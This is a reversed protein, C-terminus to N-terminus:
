HPTRSELPHWAGATIDVRYRIAHGFLFLVIGLAALYVVSPRVRANHPNNADVVAIVAFATACSSVTDAFAPDMTKVGNRLPNAGVLLSGHSPGTIPTKVSKALRVAPSQRIKM